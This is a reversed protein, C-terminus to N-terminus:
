AVPRALFIFDVSKRHVFGEGPVDEGLDRPGSVEAAHFVWGGTVAEPALVEIAAEALADAEVYNRSWADMQLRVRRLPHLGEMTNARVNSVIQFTLAALAAAEGDLPREVFAINEGAIDTIAAAATARAYIAEALATV